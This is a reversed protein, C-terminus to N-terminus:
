GGAANVSWYMAAIQTETREEVFGGQAQATLYERIRRRGTDDIRRYTEIRTTYQTVADNLAITDSWVEHAYELRPTYGNEWLLAFAYVLSDDLAKKDERAGVLTNLADYVISTRRCPKVMLCWGRSAASLKMFTKADTIAPTKNALTLDFAGKWGKEELSLTHWNEELVQIGRHGATKARAFALMKPSIDIGTIEAGDKALALLFRGTGCGVDLARGGPPLMRERTIIRMTMSTEVTPVAFTSFRAAVADWWATNAGPNLEGAKWLSYIDLM